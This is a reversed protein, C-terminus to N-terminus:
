SEQDIILNGMDGVVGQFKPPIVITSDPQEVIAPGKVVQGSVLGSREYIPSEMGQGQFWVRRTGSPRSPKQDGAWNETLRSGPLEGQAVLRLNVFEILARERFYGYSHNHALHFQKFLSNLVAATIKGAPVPLSLEYSQGAYRMDALRSLVVQDASFGERALQIKGQDELDHYISDL